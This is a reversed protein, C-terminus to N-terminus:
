LYRKELDDVRNAKLDVLLNVMEANLEEVNDGLRSAVKIKNEIDDLRANIENFKSRKAKWNLYEDKNDKSDLGRLSELVGIKDVKVAVVDDYMTYAVYEDKVYHALLEHYVHQDSTEIVYLM